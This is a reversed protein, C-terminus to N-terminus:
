RTRFWATCSFVDKAIRIQVNCFRRTRPSVQRFTWSRFRNKCRTRASRLNKLFEYILQQRFLKLILAYRQITKGAGAPENTSFRFDSVVFALLYSPMVPSAPFSTTTTGNASCILLKYHRMLFINKYNSPLKQEKQTQYRMFAQDMFSPSSLHQKTSLNMMVLFLMVRTPLSSNHPLWTDKDIIGKKLFM